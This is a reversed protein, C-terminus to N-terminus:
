KQLTQGDADRLGNTAILIVDIFWWVGCGGFTFLKLLGTGVLGMYFRDVGWYGLFISLLLAVLWQRRDKGHTARETVGSDGDVRAM